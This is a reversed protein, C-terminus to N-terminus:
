FYKLLSIVVFFVMPNPCGMLSNQILMILALLCFNFPFSNFLHRPKIYEQCSSRSFNDTPHPISIKQSRGASTRTGWLSGAGRSFGWAGAHPPHPHPRSEWLNQRMFFQFFIILLSNM